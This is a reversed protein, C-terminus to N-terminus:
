QRTKNLAFRGKTDKCFRSSVGKRVNTLLASCLTAAPTKGETTWFGRKLIRMMM